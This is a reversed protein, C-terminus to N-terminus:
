PLSIISIMGQIKNIIGKSTSKSERLSRILRAKEAEKILEAQRLNHDHLNINNM